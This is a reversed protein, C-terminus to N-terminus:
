GCLHVSRWVPWATLPLVWRSLVQITQHSLCQVFVRSWVPWTFALCTSVRVCFSRAIPAREGPKNTQHIDTLTTVVLRSLSFGTCSKTKAKNQKHWPPLFLEWFIFKFRQVLKRNVSSPEGASKQRIASTKPIGKWSNHLYTNEIIWVIRGSEGDGMVRVMEEAGYGWGKNGTDRDQKKMNEGHEQRTENAWQKTESVAMAHSRCPRETTQIQREFLPGLDWWGVWLVSFVFWGLCSLCSFICHIKRHAWLYFGSLWM